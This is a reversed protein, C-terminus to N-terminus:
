KKSFFSMLSTQKMAKKDVGADPFKKVNGLSKHGTPIDKPEINHIVDNDNIEVDSEWVKEVVEFGYEDISTRNVLKRRKNQVFPEINNDANDVVSPRADHDKCNLTSFMKTNISTVSANKRSRRAKERKTTADNSKQTPVEAEKSPKVKFEEVTSMPMEDDDDAAFIDDFLTSEKTKMSNTVDSTYSKVTALPKLNIKDNLNKMLQEISMTCNMNRDIKSLSSAEETPLRTDTAKDNLSSLTFLASPQKSTKCGSLTSIDDCNRLLKDLISQIETIIVNEAHLNNESGCLSYVYSDTSEEPAFESLTVNYGVVDDIKTSTSFLYTAKLNDYNDAKFQKLSQKAEEIGIGFEHHLTRSTVVRNETFILQSLLDNLDDTIM